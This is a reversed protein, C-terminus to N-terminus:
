CACGVCEDHHTPIERHAPQARLQGTRFDPLSPAGAEPAVRLPQSLLGLVPKRVDSTNWGRKVPRKLGSRNVVSQGAVVVDETALRGKDVLNELAGLRTIQWDLLGRFEFKHDVELRCFREPEVHRWRQEHVRIPQDLSSRQM